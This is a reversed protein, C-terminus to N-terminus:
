QAVGGGFIRGDNLMADLNEIHLIGEAGVQDGFTAGAAGLAVAVVILALGGGPVVAVAIMVGLTAYGAGLGGRVTAELIAGRKVQNETLHGQSRREEESQVYVCAVTVAGDVYSFSTRLASNSIKTSLAATTGASVVNGPISAPKVIGCMELLGDRSLYRQLDEVTLGHSAWQNLPQLAQVRDEVTRVCDDVAAGWERLVREVTRNLDNLTLFHREIERDFTAIVAANQSGLEQKRNGLAVIAQRSAEWRREAEALQGTLTMATWGLERLAASTTALAVSIVGLTVALNRGFDIYEASRGSTWAGETDVM